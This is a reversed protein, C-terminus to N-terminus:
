LETPDVGLARLQEELRQAKSRAADLQQTTQDLQQTTQDLQQTTQDLQQTTQDLQQTTQDLQQGLEVYTLFRSGDPRYIELTEPTVVFRIGLLPSVWNDIPDIVELGGNQRQWGILEVTDPDYEYYEQVGYRSYFQLKKAMEGRRNSPSLIEFVVQPAVNDEEWQRYSGRYGKPRALAVLVDPALCIRNNGEVPYWLLDGAVFVNADEAYIMELNEKITVIWKFQETNDAMPKGDSDPYIVSDSHVISTTQIQQVMTARPLRQARPYFTRDSLEMRLKDCHYRTAEGAEIAKALDWDQVVVV